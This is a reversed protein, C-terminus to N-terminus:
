LNGYKYHKPSKTNEAVFFNNMMNNIICCLFLIFSNNGFQHSTTLIRAINLRLFLGFANKNFNHITRILIVFM